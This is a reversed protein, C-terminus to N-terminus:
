CVNITSGSQGNQLHSKTIQQLGQQVWSAISFWLCNHLGLFPSEGEATDMEATEFPSVRSIAYITLSVLCGGAIMLAWVSTSLPALFSFLDISKSPSAVFLISIGLDLFPM